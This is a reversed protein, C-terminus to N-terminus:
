GGKMPSLIEIHDGDALRCLQREAVPVVEGNRATALWNGAYDLEAMLAALTDAAVEQVEGNIVLKM